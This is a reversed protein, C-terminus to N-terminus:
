RQMVSRAMRRLYDGAPMESVTRLIVSLPRYVSSTELSRKTEKGLSCTPM